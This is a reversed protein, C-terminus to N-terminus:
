SPEPQERYGAGHVWAVPLGGTPHSRSDDQSAPSPLDDFSRGIRTHCRLHLIARAGSDSWRMGSRKLRLQVLCKPRPKSRGRASPCARSASYRTACAPPTPASTAASLPRCRPPRPRPPHLSVLHPLLAAAGRHQLMTEARRQWTATHVTPGPQGHLAKGLRWLHQTAHYWDVIETRKSGIAALLLMASPVGIEPLQLLFPLRNKGSGLHKCHRCLQKCHTTSFRRV